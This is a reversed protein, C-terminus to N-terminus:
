IISTFRLTDRDISVKKDPLIRDALDAKVFKLNINYTNAERELYIATHTWDQFYSSGILEQGWNWVLEPIFKKTHGVLMYSVGDNIMTHELNDLLQGVDYGRTIDGSLIRYIPDIIILGPHILSIVQELQRFGYDRDLKIISENVLWLNDPTVSNGRIYKILRNRYEAKPIELQILLTTTKKTKFGFWDKGSAICFATHMATMSKLSGWMGFLILKSKPLLIGDSIIPTTNPPKWELIEKLTEPKM